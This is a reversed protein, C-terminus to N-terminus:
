LGSHIQPVHVIKGDRMGELIFLQKRILHVKLLMADVASDLRQEEAKSQANIFSNARRTLEGSATYLEKEGDSIREDLTKNINSSVIEKESNTVFIIEM